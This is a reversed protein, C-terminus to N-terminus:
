KAPTKNSENLEEKRIDKAVIIDKDFRMEKSMNQWVKLLAEMSKAEAIDKLIAAKEAEAKEKKFDEFEEMEESTAVEGSTAYGLMALARGIAITENKEFGKEGKVKASYMLSSAEADASDLADKSSVGSKLLDYFDTKDRWVYAHHILDGNESVSYKVAIKSHPNKARFENLRDAVKAYDIEVSKKEGTRKDTYEKKIKSTKVQM